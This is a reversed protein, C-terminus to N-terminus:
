DQQDEHLKSIGQKNCEKSAYLVCFDDGKSQCLGAAMGNECM